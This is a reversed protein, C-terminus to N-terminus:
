SRRRLALAAPREPSHARAEREPRAAQERGLRRELVLVLERGGLRDRARARRAIALAIRRGWRPKRAAPRAGPGATNPRRQPATPVAGSLGRREVRPARLGADAGEGQRPRGPLRPVAERGRAMRRTLNGVSYSCWSAHDADVEAPRLDERAEDVRVSRHVLRDFPRGDVVDCSTAGRRARRSRRALQGLVTDGRTPKPM